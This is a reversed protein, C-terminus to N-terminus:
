FRITMGVHSRAFGLREYFRQADVRTRHTLLEVLKCSNGRAETVAWQVLLEGIGRSRCDSAVRVRNGSGLDEFFYCWEAGLHEGVLQTAARIIEGPDTLEALIQSLRVLPRTHLEIAERALEARVQATTETLVVLIGAIQGDDGTVPSYSLNLFVEDPAEGRRDLVM